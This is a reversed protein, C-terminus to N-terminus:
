SDVSALYREAELAAMCGTGAATIAQRYVHDQVDGAAFVGAVNTRTSDTVVFGKDDLDIQGKFADTNPKHGIAIFVGNVELLSTAGTKVNKLKLGTVKGKAVDLVEEVVSDLALKIKPNAKVRDQMIKSARFQDRRHVITVESCLRSLFSAEEMATDGGGIVAVPMDKYFAGDCTACATVGRGRLKQESDINLYMASAGTAIIVSTADLTEDGALKVKLPRGSFDVAVVEDFVFRAGFREAQERMRTVLDTGTVAEPFGPYNEVDTTTTLQGGPQMGDIIVPKLDARAAYVAATLGAPGTGIVVVKEIM